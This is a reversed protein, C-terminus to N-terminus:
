DIKWEKEQEPIKVVLKVPLGNYGTKKLFRPTINKVVIKINVVEINVM